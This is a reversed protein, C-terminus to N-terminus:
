PRAEAMAPSVAALRLEAGTETFTAEVRHGVGALAQRLLAFQVGDPKLDPVPTGSGGEVAFSVQTTMRSAAACTRSGAM